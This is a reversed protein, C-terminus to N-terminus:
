EEEQSYQESYQSQTKGNPLEPNELAYWKLCSVRVHDVGWHGLPAIPNSGASTWPGSSIRLIPEPGEVDTPDRLLSGSSRSKEGIRASLAWRGSFSRNASKPRGTPPRIM